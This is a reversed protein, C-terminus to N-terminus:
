YGLETLKDRLARIYTPNTGCCGGIYSVGSEMAKVSHTVFHEVDFQMKIQGGSMGSKGANPKFILPLDTCAKYQAMLPLAEDPGLSCNLGVAAVPEDKLADVVDRVSNGMITRGGGGYSMSCFIPLGHKKAARVAVKMMEIDIFTEMLIVDPKGAAGASIQEDFIEFADEETLDGYPELLVPLPGVSLVIKARGDAAEHAIEMAASVVENVKFNTKKMSMANASFTNAQVLEAGADLYELCLERVIKPNTLNYQWVPVKDESKEWLSTGIAGDLLTVGNKV